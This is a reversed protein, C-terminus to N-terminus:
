GLPPMAAIARLLQGVDPSGWGTTLDWGPTADYGPVSTDLDANSGITVDHFGVGQAGLAYLYPNLFGIPRGALQDLDAVLGAVQPSSESTGGIFWWGTLDPTVSLYILIGNCPDALWSVDPIGRHGGLASQVSGPLGRQYAPETFAQSVGGGTAGCYGFPGLPEGWVTEHDYNGSTDAFLSTGGVSTVWPSSAPYGVVPMPYLTSLDLEYNTSGTDGSSALVTVKQGKARAYLGEFTGFVQNGQPTFLTNETAGWSQSIVQGLHHDLAYKVLQAFEPMGQVGETESVPSTLVVIAADPAMAHAWEVDLTTEFAWIVMDGNSPDFPVSGLPSLVTLSKLAPLGYGEDFAAVDQALTPSGFSDIIVITQGAGTDGTNLLSDVGYAHRIEQPSYCATDFFNARCFADTPPADGHKAFRAQVRGDIVALAGSHAVRRAHTGPSGGAAALMAAAVVASVGATRAFRM